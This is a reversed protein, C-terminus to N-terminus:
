AFFAQHKNVLLIFGIAIGGSDRFFLVRLQFRQMQKVTHSIPSLAILVKNENESKGTFQQLQNNQAEVTARFSAIKPMLISYTVIAGVIFCILGVLFYIM